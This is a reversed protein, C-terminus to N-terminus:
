RLLVMKKTATYEETKLQYFYIGSGVEKGSNDRGDWIVKYNGPAKEEDVLTRVLQGLINYIKLTTHIPGHVMFESGGVRYPLTTAPNFPNPYNQSLEYRQPVSVSPNDEVGLPEGFDRMLSSVIQKAESKDMYFLPFGFFALKYDLGAYKLGCVKGEFATDGAYSDYTYLPTAGSRLNFVNVYALRGGWGYLERVIARSTDVELDPYSSTDLSAAEVFDNLVNENAWTIHLYDYVFSGPLFTRPLGKFSRLGTWSFLIFRGGYGIYDKILEYDANDVFNSKMFDDDLWVITSYPGAVTIGPKQAVTTYEYFSAKYGSFVESYFSDQQLDSSPFPPIGRSNGAEDIVLIGQDLTIAIMQVEDSMSSENGTTDVGTLRYHYWIGGQVTSDVYFLGKLGTALLDYGSGSTLSRYLNYHSFDAEKNAQWSLSIQFYGTQASLGAPALPIVRPRGTLESKYISEKGSGNVASVAIYYTSDSQLGRLTDTTLTYSVLQTDTYVGSQTGYYIKYGALGSELLPSWNLYLKEGDGADWVELGKVPGPSEAVEVLTALNMKVIQSMYPISLYVVSDSPQHYHTSFITEFSYVINYGVQSFPWSDSGSSNGLIHPNLSTYIDAMQTLLQAYPHSPVDTHIDMDTVNEGHAIMDFNIMLQIDMGRNYADYAYATSGLLGLEEAAFPMFIVTKPLPHGAIIRAMELTAATGTGNDDAGPAQDNENLYSWNVSDFHGGVVIVKDPNVTGPIVAVVNSDTLWNGRAYYDFATFPYFYVSDIGFEKFKDYLWHRAKIISDSYVFRTQYSQLKNLYSTLSDASVMSVLSDRNLSPSLAPALPSPLPVYELPIPQEPVKNVRYGAKLLELAKVVDTKLLAVRDDELLIQGYNSLSARTRSLSKSVLFYNEVSVNEDLVQLVLGHSELEPIKDEAIEAIFSNDLKAHAKLGSEKALEYDKASKLDIKVLVSQAAFSLSFLFVLLVAGTVLFQIKKWSM